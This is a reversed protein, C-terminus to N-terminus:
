TGTGAGGRPRPAPWDGDDTLIWRREDYRALDAGRETGVLERLREPAALISECDSIEAMVQEYDTNLQRRRQPSLQLLQMNLVSRADAQRIGLLEMVGSEASALSDSAAVLNRVADMNDLAALIATLIRAREQLKSIRKQTGAAIADLQFGPPAKGDQLELVDVDTSELLATRGALFRRVHEGSEHREFAARNRYLEYFIRQQPQGEVLHCAYVLTGPERERIGAATEAVLADFAAESGPRVTFRVMLAFPRPDEAM